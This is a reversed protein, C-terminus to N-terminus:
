LDIASLHFQSAGHIYVDTRTWCEISKLQALFDGSREIDLSLSSTEWCGIKDNGDLYWNAWENKGEHYSFCQFGIPKLWHGPKREQYGMSILAERITM